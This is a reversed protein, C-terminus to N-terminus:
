ILRYEALGRIFTGLLVKLIVISPIALLMGAFGFLISGGIVGVIVVLPHLNVAGGLVVPQFVANDLLQAIAVTAMVGLFIHEEGMSPILPSINEAVLAYSLGVVLGIFPGLFPIANAMGAIIGMLLAVKLQIGVMVFGLTLSLGVLSCQLFTGRLYQGIANDVEDVMSYTLEFYRNPALSIFRRMISGRDLLMFVFVLPVLVWISLVELIWALASSKEETVASPAPSTAPPTSLHPETPSQSALERTLAVRAISGTSSKQARELNTQFFSLYLEARKPDMEANQLHELFTKQQQLDLTLIQNLSEILPTLDREVLSHLFNGKGTEPDIQMLHEYKENVKFQLRVMLELQGSEDPISSRIQLGLFILGSFILVLIVPARLSEPLGPMNFNNVLPRFLYALLAGFILPLILARLAWILFLGLGLAALGLTLYLWFARRKREIPDTPRRNPPPSDQPRM